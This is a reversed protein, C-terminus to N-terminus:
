RPRRSEQYSRAEPLLGVFLRTLEAMKEQAVTEGWEGALATMLDSRAYWLDQIHDAHFIRRAVLPLREHLDGVAMADLMAQRVGQTRLEAAPGALPGVHGLLGYISKLNPKLWRM